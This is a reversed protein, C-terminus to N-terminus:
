VIALVLAQSEQGYRELLLARCTALTSGTTCIDDMLVFTAGRKQHEAVQKDKPLLSLTHRQQRETRSLFKSQGKGKQEFLRLCPYGTLKKLISCLLLMQDFGRDSYGRRSTPIPILLPNEVPQLMPLYLPALLSALAKEEGVKFEKLLASVIGTYSAYAQLGETCFLCPYARDQLPRGCVPCRQQYRTRYSQRDLEESCLPCLLADSFRGCYICLM